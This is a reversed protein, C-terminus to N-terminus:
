CTNRGGEMKGKGKMGNLKGTQTLEPRCDGSASQHEVQGAQQGTSCCNTDWMGAVFGTVCALYM